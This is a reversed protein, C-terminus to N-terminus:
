WNTEGVKVVRDELNHDREAEGMEVVRSSPVGQPCMETIACM